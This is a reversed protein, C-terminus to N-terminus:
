DPRFTYMYSEPTHRWETQYIVSNLMCFIISVLSTIKLGRSEFIVSIKLTARTKSNCNHGSIESKKWSFILDGDEFAPLVRIPRRLEWVVIFARSRSDDSCINTVHDTFNNHTLERWHTTRFRDYQLHHGWTREHSIHRPLKLHCEVTM